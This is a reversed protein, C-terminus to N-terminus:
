LSTILCLYPSPERDLQESRNEGLSPYNDQDNTLQPRPLAGDDSGQSHNESNQLFYMTLTISAAELTQTEHQTKGESDSYSTNLLCLPLLTM